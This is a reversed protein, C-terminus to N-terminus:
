DESDDDILEHLLDDTVFKLRDVQLNLLLTKILTGANEDTEEMTQAMMLTTLKGVTSAWRQLDVKDWDCARDISIQFSIEHWDNPASILKPKKSYPDTM